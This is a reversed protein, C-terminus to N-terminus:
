IKLARQIAQNLDSMPWPKMVIDFFGLEKFNKEDVRSSYGTVLIIPLSPKIKKLERALIDGTMNPMAQDTIVLDINDITNKAFALAEEASTFATVSYGMFELSEKAVEVNEEVDDVFLIRENGIKPIANKTKESDNLAESIPFYVSVSLGNDSELEITGEQEVVINYITAMGLKTGLGNREDPSATESTPDFLDALSGTYTFEGSDCITLKVYTGPNVIAGMTNERILRIDADNAFTVEDLSINIQGGSSQIRLIAEDCLNDIMQNIGIQGAYIPSCQPSIDAIIEIGEPAADRLLSVNKALLKAMQVNSKQDDVQRSFDLIQRVLRKALDAGRAIRTLREFNRDGEEVSEIALNAYGFIPTLINNFDHAIGEVLSGISKLRHDQAQKQDSKHRDLVERYIAVIESNQDSGNSVPRYIVERTFTDGNKRRLEITKLGCEPLRSFEGQDGPELCFFNINQGLIEHEDYGFIEVFASNCKQIKWNKDLLLMPDCFSTFFCESQFDPFETPHTDLKTIEM